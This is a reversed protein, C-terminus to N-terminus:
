AGKLHHEIRQDAINQQTIQGVESYDPDSDSSNQHESLNDEEFNQLTTRGAPSFFFLIM